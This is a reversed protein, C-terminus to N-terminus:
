PSPLGVLPDEHRWVAFRESMEKAAPKFEETYGENRRSWGVFFNWIEGVHGLLDSMLLEVTHPENRLLVAGTPVPHGGLECHFGYDQGRFKGGAAERLKAPRFFEDRTAKDSQLWREADEHRADFAWALYEVEVIQRLLAAGAYPRGNSLLESSASILQGAILLLFSMGVVEDSGHGFASRGTVRGDGLLHGSIHLRTGVDSFVRASHAALELRLAKLQPTLSEETM